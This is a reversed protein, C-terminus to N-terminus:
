TTATGEARSEVERIRRRLDDLAQEFSKAQNRLVELEQEKTFPAFGAPPRYAGWARQWGPMGTAFYGHHHRWGGCGGGRGGGGRGWAPSMFGPIPYGACFGAQRGTMPGLGAPGTRDGGPM